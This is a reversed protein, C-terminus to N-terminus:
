CQDGEILFVKASAQGEVARNVGGLVLVHAAGSQHVHTISLQRVARQGSLSV